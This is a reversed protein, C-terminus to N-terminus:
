VAVTDEDDDANLIDLLKDFDQDLDDFDQSWLDDPDDDKDDIWAIYYGYEAPNEDCVRTAEKLSLGKVLPKDSPYNESDSHYLDFSGDEREEIRYIDNASM